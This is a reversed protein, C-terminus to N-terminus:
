RHDADPLCNALPNPYTGENDADSRDLCAFDKEILIYLTSNGETVNGEIGVADSETWEDSRSQPISVSIVNDEFSADLQGASTKKLEFRLAKGAATGFQIHDTIVGNAAFDAVEPQKLRFRITNGSIRIKM